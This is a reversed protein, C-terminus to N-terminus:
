APLTISISAMPAPVVIKWDFFFSLAVWPTFNIATLERWVEPSFLFLLPQHSVTTKLIQTDDGIWFNQLALRYRILVAVVLFFPFLCRDFLVRTRGPVSAGEVATAV